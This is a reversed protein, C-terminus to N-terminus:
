SKDALKSRSPAPAANQTGPDDIEALHGYPYVYSCVMIVVLLQPFTGVASIFLGGIAWRLDLTQIRDLRM